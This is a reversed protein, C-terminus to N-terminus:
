LSVRAKAGPSEKARAAPYYLIGVVLELIGLVPPLDVIQIHQVVCNVNVRVLLASEKYTM